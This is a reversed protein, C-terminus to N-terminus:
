MTNWHEYYGKGFMTGFTKSRRIRGMACVSCSDVAAVRRQRNRDHQRRAFDVKVCYILRTNTNIYSLLARAQRVDRAKHVFIDCWKEFMEYFYM